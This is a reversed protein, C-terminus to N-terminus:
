AQYLDMTKLLEQLQRCLRQGEKFTVQKHADSLLLWRSSKIENQQLIVKGDVLAPFYHVTKDIKTGHLTFCYHEIMPDASLMRVISLGTEERLEREAAQQPLEGAEAHGKPFSWHGSHHQISLVDWRGQNFRLPIIGYSSEKKM